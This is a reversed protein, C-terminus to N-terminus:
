LVEGRAVLRKGEFLEFRSGPVLLEQPADEALMRIDVVMENVANVTSGIRLVVSWAERPWKDALSEFRAVTSYTSGQPPSLRGGDLTSVWRLRARREFNM